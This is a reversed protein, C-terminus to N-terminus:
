DEERHVRASEPTVVIWDDGIGAIDGNIALCTKRIRAIARKLESMDKDRLDKIKVLLINGNRVKEQVRDSDVYDSMTEVQIMMKGSGKDGTEVDLEVYEEPKKELGFINISLDKEREQKNSGVHVSCEM